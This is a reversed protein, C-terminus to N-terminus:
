IIFHCKLLNRPEGVAGMRLEKTRVIRKHEYVCDEFQHPFSLSLFQSSPHLTKAKEPHPLLEKQDM